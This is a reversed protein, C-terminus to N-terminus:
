RFLEDLRWVLQIAEPWGSEAFVDLLALLDQLSKDERVELRYDTITTEVLKVVERIALPDINYGMPKSSEAVCAAMHLVGKPDYKIVGNLMKMFHHATPAFLLGNVQDTAFSLAHELLPKVSWYFKIREEDTINGETTQPKDRVDAAFYLRTIIADIIEYVDRLQIQSEEDWQGRAKERLENIGRIAADIATHLWQIARGVTETQKETSIQQPTIFSLADLVARNLVKASPVPNTIYTDIVGTAWPDKHAILLWMVLSILSDSLHAHNDEQLSKNVLTSLVQIATDKDHVIVRGISRCLTDLVVKNTEKEAIYKAMRWFAEKDTWFIRWLEMTQLFRVSPVKDHILTEIASLIEADAKSSVLWPLALAAENRPANTWHPSDYKSDYEPDPEPLEHQSCEILVKRSFKFEESDPDNIIARSMTGVCSALISWTSNIVAKDAKTNEKIADYAKTTVPFILRVAEISPIKNQWEKTFQDLPDFLEQLEQNEPRSLDAGQEQLWKEHTYPESWSKFTVLPENKVASRDKSLKEILKKGERTQILRSPIRALLRDRMRELSERREETAGQNPISIINEEIQKLEKDSYETATAELFTGLAVLTDLGTQIPPAICLEFLRPAFVKPNSAGTDLLQRWFFAAYAKDRIINLMSDIYEHKEETLALKNIFEFLADSMEIPEYHHQTEYWIHSSDPLYAVQKGRFTFQQVLDELKIGEKLYPLVHQRIIFQNLADIAASAAISAQASLFQPFEKILLYQCMEYDQRRTSTLPIVPTGFSTKGQGMETHSFITYYITACFEPAYAWIKGIYEALRYLFQIPFNEDDILSLVGELLTQSEKNNTKFTKAVLPVVLNAGLIDIWENGVKGREEWVWALLHRSIRGCSNLVEEKGVVSETRDVINLTLSSLEWAFERTIHGTINEFFTVWLEDQIIEWARLAQLLYLTARAGNVKDKELSEILPSLEDLSRAENAIVSSPLLREFIRLSPNTSVILRWFVQWFLDPVDHWLRTLYFDISPRLFLPRSPQFKIFELFKDPEDEILLVSVAYDFLINHSFTVRQDTTSVEKLVESSLLSKWAERAEFVYVDEKRVVMSSQDVMSQTVKTLLVQIDESLPGSNVRYKWYLGLLEVESGIASLEDMKPNELLLKEVLWLNFPIKLLEKFDASGQQYISSLNPITKVAIEVEEETLKPIMFHRCNISSMQFDASPLSGISVPFLDQLEQSKRADYTRASVLVNWQGKLSNIVQRIISLYFRQTIESRAADFADIILIGTVEDSTGKKKQLYTIFDERINLEKKFADETNVGLKDIPLYVCPTKQDILQSAFRHLTHTKGVGPPGVLVGSGSFAYAQLESILKDRQIEM